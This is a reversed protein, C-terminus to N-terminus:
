SSSPMDANHAQAEQVAAALAEPAHVTDADTFLLWKGKARKAASFCANSKGSWRSPLPDASLVTVHAFTAAIQRTQDSSDDDVLLIEFDVDKQAVLSQLCAALCAQENRAPVIISVEPHPRDAIMRSTLM